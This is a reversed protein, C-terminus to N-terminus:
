LQRELSDVIAKYIEGNYVKDIWGFIGSPNLELFIFEGNENVVFDFSGYQLNYFRMMEIIKEKLESDIDIPKMIDLIDPRIRYDVFEPKAECAASFFKRDVVVVRAELTKKIKEQYIIPSFMLANPNKLFSKDFDITTADFYEEEGKDKFYRPSAITKIICKGVDETFRSIEDPFNSILTKPLTFGLKRAIAIQSLKNSGHRISRPSNFWKIPLTDELSFLVRSFVSERIREIFNNKNNEYIKEGVTQHCYGVGFENGNRTKNDCSLIVDIQDSVDFAVKSINNLDLNYRLFGINRENLQDIISDCEYGHQHTIMLIDKM